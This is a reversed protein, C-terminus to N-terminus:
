ERLPDLQADPVQPVHGALRFITFHPRGRVVMRRQEKDWVRYNLAPAEALRVLDALRDYAAFVFTPTVPMTADVTVKSRPLRRGFKAVPTWVTFGEEGLAEALAITSGPMTRLICWETM